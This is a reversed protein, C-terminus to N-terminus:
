RDLVSVTAASAVEFVTLGRYRLGLTIGDRGVSLVPQHTGASASAAELLLLLRQVQAPHRQAAAAQAVAAIVQRLKKVGWGVGHDQRLRQLTQRQTAGAAGHLRAARGALAPSAGAVLGQARALPFLTPDGSKDTPRYGARWLRIQGFLTWANQPTKRGLRTYPGAEFHVHGPLARVDTPELRNYAHQVVERGLERLAEQVDQEFQQTRAPSIPQALFGEVLGQLRQLAPQLVDSLTAASGGSEAPAGAAPAKASLLSSLTLFLRTSYSM